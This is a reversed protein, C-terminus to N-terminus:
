YIDRQLRRVKQLLKVIEPHETNSDAEAFSLYGLLEYEILDLQRSDKKFTNMRFNYANITEPKM